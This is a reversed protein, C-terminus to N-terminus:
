AIRRARENGGAKQRERKRGAISRAAIAPRARQKQPGALQHVGRACRDFGGRGCHGIRSESATRHCDQARAKTIISPDGWRGRVPGIVVAIVLPGFFDGKGSEDVGFHPQFMEPSHVEEYGLKAEGLIKLELEFQVFEEVGRGQVLVKPGKEYVAVSLKNKQAFFITWQKPSFEFGLEELLARLKTAQEKTLPHTYSNMSGCILVSSVYNAHM